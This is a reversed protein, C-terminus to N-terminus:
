VPPDFKISIMSKEKEIFFIAHPMLLKTSEIKDAPPEAIVIRSPAARRRSRRYSPPLGMLRARSEVGRNISDETDESSEYPPPMRDRRYRDALTAAPSEEEEDGSHDECDTTVTFSFPTPLSADNLPSQSYDDFRSSPYDYSGRPEVIRRTSITLPQSAYSRINSLPPPISREDTDDVRRSPPRHDNFPEPLEPIPSPQFSRMPSSSPSVRSRPAKQIQYRSTGSLLDESDMSVFIM